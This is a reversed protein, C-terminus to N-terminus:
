TRLYTLFGAEPDRARCVVVTGHYRHGGARGDDTIQLVALHSPSLLRMLASGPSVSVLPFHRRVPDRVILNRFWLSLSRDAREPQPPTPPSTLYSIHPRPAPSQDPDRSRSSWTAPSGWTSHRLNLHSHVSKGHETERHTLKEYLRELGSSGRGGCTDCRWGRRYRRVAGLRTGNDCGGGGDGDSPCRPLGCRRHQPRFAPSRACARGREHVDGKRPPVQAREPEPVVSMSLNLPQAWHLSALPSSPLLSSPLFPLRAVDHPFSPFFSFTGKHVRSAAARLAPYYPQAISNLKQPSSRQSRQTSALRNRGLARQLPRPHPEHTWPEHEGLCPCAPPTPSGASSANMRVARHRCDYLRLNSCRCRMFTAFNCTRHRLILTSSYSPSM